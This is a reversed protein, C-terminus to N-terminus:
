RGEENLKHTRTKGCPRCYEGFLTNLFDYVGVVARRGCGNDCKRDLERMHAM